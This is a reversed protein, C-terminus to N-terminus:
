VHVGLEGFNQKVVNPFSVDVMEYLLLVSDSQVHLEQDVVVQLLVGHEYCRKNLGFFFSDGHDFEQFCLPTLNVEGVHEVLGTEEVRCSIAFDFENFRKRFETDVDVVDVCIALRTQEIGTSFALVFRALYECITADFNVADIM